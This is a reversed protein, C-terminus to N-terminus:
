ELPEMWIRVDHRLAELAGARSAIAQRILTMLKQYLFLNHLSLMRAALIENQVFLHRLYARTFTKCTYCSCAPDLPNQDTKYRANKINIYGQTTFVKGNRTPIVCDFIDIGRIVAEVIDIPYGVGMLYRLKNKPLHPTTIEVMRLLDEQPEGVSLGGVAYADLDFSVIEQAHEIRLEEYFGGQVIGLLATTNSKTRAEMCRKLWRTTRQTSKQVAEYSAPWPICEDFAMALDIGLAEQIEICVEPTLMRYAGDKPSRFRVGEESITRFEKLSFVQYGGSDTLIPGDWGMFCHLGGLQEVLQHGPRVWLHYANSLVISCGIERLERPSIGKVTGYTGVPMFAPTPVDGHPTSLIGTRAAGATAHISLSLPSM